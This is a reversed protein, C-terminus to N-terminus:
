IRSGLVGIHERAVEVRQLEGIRAYVDDESIGQIMCQLRLSEGGFHMSHQLGRPNHNELECTLHGFHGLGLPLGEGPRVMLQCELDESAKSEGLAIAGGDIKRLAVIEEHNKALASFM